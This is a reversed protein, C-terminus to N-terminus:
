ETSGKSGELETKLQKKRNAVQFVIPENDMEDLWPDLENLEDIRAQKILALIKDRAVKLEPYIVYHDEPTFDVETIPDLGMNYRKTSVLIKDLEESLETM